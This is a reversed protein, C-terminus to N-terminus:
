SRTYTITPSRREPRDLLALTAPEALFRRLAEAPADVALIYIMTADRWVALTHGAQERVLPQRTIGATSCSQRPLTFLALRRAAAEPEVDRLFARAEFTVLSSSVGNLVVLGSGDTSLRKLADPIEGPVPAARTAFWDRVDAISRGALESVKLDEPSTAIAAAIVDDISVVQNQKPWALFVVLAISAAAALAALATAFPRGIVFRPLDRRRPTAIRDVATFISARLEAPPAVSQVKEAFSREFSQEREFWAGLEPDIRAAILAPQADPDDRDAGHPRLARLIKQSSAKDM